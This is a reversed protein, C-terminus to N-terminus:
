PRCSSAVGVRGPRAGRTSFRTPRRGLRSVTRHRGSRRDVAPPETDPPAVTTTTTASPSEVLLIAFDEYAVPEGVPSLEDNPPLPVDIPVGDRTFLVQGIGQFRTLTLVLQAIALPPDTRPMQELVEGSLDVTAIGRTVAVDLVLGERVKTDLGVSAEGLPPGQELRLILLEPSPESLPIVQM